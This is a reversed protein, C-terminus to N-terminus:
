TAIKFLVKHFAPDGFPNWCTRKGSSPYPKISKPHARVWPDPGMNSLRELTLLLALEEMEDSGLKKTQMSLPVMMAILFEDSPQHPYDLRAEYVEEATCIILGREAGAALIDEFQCSDRLHLEDLSAVALRVQSQVPSLEVRNILESGWDSLCVSHDLLDERLAEPSNHRGITVVPLEKM